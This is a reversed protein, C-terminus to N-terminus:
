IRGEQDGSYDGIRTADFQGDARDWREFYKPCHNRLFPGFDRRLGLRHDKMREADRLAVARRSVAYTKQGGYKGVDPIVHSEM